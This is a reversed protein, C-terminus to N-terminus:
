LLSGCGHALVPRRCPPQGMLAPSSFLRRLLFSLVPEDEEDEQREEFQLGTEM